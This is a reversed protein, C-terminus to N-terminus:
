ARQRALERLLAKDFTAVEVNEVLARSILLCDEFDLRTERYIALAKNQASSLLVVSPWHLLETFFLGVQKHTYGQARLVYTVEAITVSDVALSDPESTELVTDVAVAQEVVDQLCWRLLYNADLLKM